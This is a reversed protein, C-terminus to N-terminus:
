SEHPLMITLVPEGEDGPGIEVVLAVKRPRHGSGERKVRYLEITQRREGPSAIMVRSAMFLVDWLRGTEDQLTNKRQDDATDWAVCDAWAAATLAVPLLIGTEAVLAPDAEVLVGDALAQARTYSDIVSGFLDVLSSPEDGFTAYFADPGLTWPEPKEPISHADNDYM